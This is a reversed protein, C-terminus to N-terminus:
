ALDNQCITHLIDITAVLIPWWMYAIRAKKMQQLPM